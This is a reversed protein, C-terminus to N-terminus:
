GRSKLWKAFKEGREQWKKQRLVKKTVQLELKIPKPRGFLWRLSGGHQYELNAVELVRDYYERQEGKASEFLKRWEDTVFPFLGFRSYWNLILLVNCVVVIGVVAISIQETFSPHELVSVM